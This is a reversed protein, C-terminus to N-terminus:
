NIPKPVKTWGSVDFQESYTPPGLVGTAMGPTILFANTPKAVRTWFSPDIGDYFMSSDDYTISSQDYQTRGTLNVNTWGSTTPKISLTWGNITQPLLVSYFTSTDNQNNYSTSDFSVTFTRGQFLRIEDMVGSFRRSLNTDNGLRVDATGSDISAGTTTDTAKSVGNVRLEGGGSTANIYASIFYWTGVTVVGVASNANQTVGDIRYQFDVQGSTGISIRPYLSNGNARYLISRASALSDVNIWGSYYWETAADVFNADALVIEDSTTFSYGSGIKGGSTQTAGTVTATVGRSSSDNANGQFHGVYNAKDGWVSESGGPSTASANGYWIYFTTDDTSSLSNARFWMQGTQASADFSVLEYFLSNGNTDYVRIDAGDDQVNQFFHDSLDSMDVYIPFNTLDGAVKTHDIRIPQRFQWNM